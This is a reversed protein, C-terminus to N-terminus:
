LRPEFVTYKALNGEFLTNIYALSRARNGNRKKELEADVDISSGANQKLSEDNM